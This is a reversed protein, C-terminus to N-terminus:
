RNFLENEVIVKQTPSCSRLFSARDENNSLVLKNVLLKLDEENNLYQIIERGEKEGIKDCKNLMSKALIAKKEIKTKDNYDISSFMYLYDKTTFNHENLFSKLRDSKFAWVIPILMDKTFEDIEKIMTGAIKSNEIKSCILALINTTKKDYNIPSKIRLPREGEFFIKVNDRLTHYAEESIESFNLKGLIEAVIRRQNSVISLNVNELKGAVVKKLFKSVKDIMLGMNVNATLQQVCKLMNATKFNGEYLLQFLRDLSMEATSKLLPQKESLFFTKLVSDENGSNLIHKCVSIVRGVFNKGSSKGINGAIRKDYDDPFKSYFLSAIGMEYGSANQLLELGGTVIGEGKKIANYYNM